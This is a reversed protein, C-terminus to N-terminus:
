ALLEMLDRDSEARESARSIRPRTDGGQSLPKLAAASAPSHAACYPRRAETPRCCFLQGRTGDPEGVPWCCERPGREFLTKLGGSTHTM